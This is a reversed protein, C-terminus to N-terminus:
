VHARGIEVSNIIANDPIDSTDWKYYVYTEANAGTTLGIEAYSSTASTYANTPNTLYDYSHDETDYSSLLRNTIAGSITEVRELEGWNEGSQYVLQTGLYAKAIEVDGLFIKGIKTSGIYSM